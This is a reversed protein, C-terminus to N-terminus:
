GGTLVELFDALKSIILGKIEPYELFVASLKSTESLFCFPRSALLMQLTHQYVGCSNLRCLSYSRQQIVEVGQSIIGM